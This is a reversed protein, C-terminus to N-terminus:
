IWFSLIHNKENKYSYFLITFYDWTGQIHFYPKSVSKGPDNVLGHYALSFLGAWQQRRRLSTTLLCIVVTLTVMRYQQSQDVGPFRTHTWVEYHLSLTSKICGMVFITCFTIKRPWIDFKVFNYEMNERRWQEEKGKKWSKSSHKPVKKFV